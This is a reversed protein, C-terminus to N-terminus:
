AEKALSIAEQAAPLMSDLASLLANPDNRYPRGSLRMFKEVADVLAQHSNCANVVKTLFADREADNPYYALAELVPRGEQWIEGDVHEMPTHQHTSM